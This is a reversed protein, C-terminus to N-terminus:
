TQRVGGCYPYFTRASETEGLEGFTQPDAWLDPSDAACELGAQPWSGTQLTLNYTTDGSVYRVKM